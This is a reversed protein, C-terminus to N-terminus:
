FLSTPDVDVKIQVERKKQFPKLSGKAVWDQFPKMSPAKLLCQYYFEDRVKERGCPIVPYLTFSAPLHKVLEERVSQGTKLVDKEEPGRFIIKALRAYPPFQLLKRGEKEEKFFPEYAHSLVHHLIPHNKLHTQLIVEGEVDGRGARGSVQTLIQFTAEGARFDPLHLNQDANLIGVLTVQPFNLGKAVMQTGILIDGKGSAFARLITEHTGKNKTTDRDMRLIRAEPFIAHLITEVRETGFGRYVLLPSKCKPCERPPPKAVGCGHCHIQNEHKHFVLPITCHDCQLAEQCHSCFLSTHHGRRNLFLISQEGKELRDKIREILPDSILCFGGHKEDERVMDVVVVKPLPKATPREKLLHLTYKGEIARTFSELSPTASGLLVLAGAEKGRLLALDRANYCPAEDNQKYAGEHEEDVIILGLNQIPSFLTSRAGIVIRANGNLLAQWGANREGHSLRHHLVSLGENFRSKLRELIQATLAVEPVLFLVGKGMELAKEMLQIYVETKGSGTIGFLLHPSFGGKELAEQLNKLTTQQESSLKKPKTPFYDAEELPSFSRDGEIRKVYGKEILPRLHAPLWGNEKMEIDSLAGGRLKLLIAKQKESRGEAEKGEETLQYIGVKRTVVNDKVGKPIAIRLVKQLPTCYYHSVFQYIRFLEEDFLPNEYLVETVPLPAPSEHTEKSRLIWGEVERGRLPVKVRMGLCPQITDEVWYELPKEIGEDLLVEVYKM